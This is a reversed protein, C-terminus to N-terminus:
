TAHEVLAAELSLGQATVMLRGKEISAASVQHGAMPYRASGAIPTRGVQKFISYVNAVDLLRQPVTAYLRRLTVRM